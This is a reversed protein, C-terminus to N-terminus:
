MTLQSLGYGPHMKHKYYVWKGSEASIIADAKELLEVQHETGQVVPCGPVMHIAHAQIRIDRQDLAAGGAVISLDLQDLPSEGLAVLARRLVFLSAKGAASNAIRGGFRNVADNPGLM